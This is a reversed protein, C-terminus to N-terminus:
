KNEETVIIKSGGEVLEIVKKDWENIFSFTEEIGLDKM